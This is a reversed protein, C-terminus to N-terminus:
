RKLASLCGRLSPFAKLHDPWVGKAERHILSAPHARAKALKLRESLLRKYRRQVIRLWHTKLIAINEGGPLEHTNGIHLDCYDSRAVVDAYARIYPHARTRRECQTAARVVDIFPLHENEMFEEPEYREITLYHGMIGPSSDETVGHVAPHILDAILLSTTTSM